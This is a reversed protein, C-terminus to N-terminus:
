SHKKDDFLERINKLLKQIPVPKDYLTAIGINKCIDEDIKDSFGTCMIVFTDKKINLIQQALDLGTLGPMTQDTIVLDFKEPKKRFENLAKTSDTYPFVTYGMKQFNVTMIECLFQEDDVVMITESGGEFSDSNLQHERPDSQSTQPLYICFTTKKEPISEVTIGGGHNSIIGFVVSLGMGTGVGDPKTTFFPNFIKSINNQSIGAGNDSVCFASYTSPPLAGDVVLLPETLIKEDFSIEITGSNDIAHAANTCLNLLVEHLRTANAMVPYNERHLKLNMTITSPLSGKLLQTVEKIIPSIYQPSKKVDHQRSFSLIQSIMDKARDASKLIQNLNHALDSSPSVEDLSLESYGIIAGLINNFDHAIGGALHGIAEMKESQQLRQELLKQETRDDFMAVVEGSPLKFVRNEVWKTINDDEYLTYPLFQPEGTLYCTQIKEFLGMQKVAPFVTTIKKGRINDIQTHTNKQGSLNMDTILFDAGNDIAKYVAVASTMNDFINNLYTRSEIIKQRSYSNKLAISVHDALLEVIRKDDETFNEDKNILGIVGVTKKEINLPALMVNKLDGPGQPMLQVWKSNIFDNEYFSEHTKYVIKNLGQLPMPLSDNVIFPIGESELFLLEKESGNENLLAVYGSKACTLDRTTDFIKRATKEFDGGELIWKSCLYLAELEATTKQSEALSSRLEEEAKLQATVDKFVCYTRSFSGDANYAIRGEFFIDIYNGDKHRIKFHVNHAVGTQQFIPFRKQFFSKFEPHLFSEFPKGIVEDRSYGLSKLWPPNVDIFCGDSNLSQYALPSNDYFARYKKESNHLKNKWKILETTNHFVFRGRLSKNENDPLLIGEMETYMITGNINKLRVTFDSIRGTEILVTKFMNQLPEVDEPHIVNFLSQEMLYAPEHGTLKRISKNYSIIKYSNLEVTIIIGPLSSIFYEHEKLENELSRIKKRLDDLTNNSNEM